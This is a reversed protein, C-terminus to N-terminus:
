EPGVARRAHAVLQQFLEDALIDLGLGAGVHQEAPVSALAQEAVDVEIFTGYFELLFIAASHRYFVGDLGVSSQEGVFPAAKELFVVPKYAYRDVAGLVHVVVVAEVAASPRCECLHHAADLQEVLVGYVPIGHRHHVVVVGHAGEFEVIEEAADATVVYLERRNDLTNEAMGACQPEGGGARGAAFGDHCRERHLRRLPAIEETSNEVFPYGVVYAGVEHLQEIGSEGVPASHWRAHAGHCRSAAMGSHHLVVAIYIGAVVEHIGFIQEAIQVGFRKYFHHEAGFLSAEAIGFGVGQRLLAEVAAPAKGAVALAGFVAYRDSGVALGAEVIKAFAVAVIECM